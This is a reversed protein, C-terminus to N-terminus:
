SQGEWGGRTDLRSAIELSELWVVSDHFGIEDPDNMLSVRSYRLTFTALLHTCFVVLRRTTWGDVCYPPWFSYGPSCIWIINDNCM